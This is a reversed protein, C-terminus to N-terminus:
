DNKFELILKFPGPSSRNIENIIKSPLLKIEGISTELSIFINSAKQLTLLPNILLTDNAISCDIYKEEFRKIEKDHNFRIENVPRGKIYLMASNILIDIQLETNKIIMTIKAHPQHPPLFYIHSIEIKKCKIIDTIVPKKNGLYLSTSVAGITGIAVAANIWDTIFNNPNTWYLVLGATFWLGLMIALSRVWISHRKIYGSVICLVLLSILLEIFHCNHEVSLGNASSFFTFNLM